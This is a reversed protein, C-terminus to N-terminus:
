DNTTGGHSSLISIIDAAYAGSRKLQLCWNCFQKLIFSLSVGSASLFDTLERYDEIPYTFNPRALKM